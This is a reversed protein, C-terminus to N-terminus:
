RDDTTGITLPLCDVGGEGTLRRALARREEPGRCVFQAAGDGQSGVGKGGWTLERAAAHQLVAHLRPAALESPCAPMVGRDFIEQAQTMLVGVDRANGAELAHRAATIIELNRSGLAERLSDLEAFRAHLDALIRRTDKQHLLDVILMYLPRASALLETRMDDGDFHLLVLRKGYACAQDMRGCQSGAALEGRYAIEIEEQVSLRLRHVQNFARATLVCIAASSSLGRGIPLDMAEVNIRVGGAHRRKCIEAAVGAAYSFFDGASAARRLAAGGMPARFPGHVSGDALRSTLEFDAAAVATARIGQDTGSIICVGPVISPDSSRLAGAWDSHEGFLCLRGPVFLEIM